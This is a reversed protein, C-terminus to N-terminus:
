EFIWKLFGWYFPVIMFIFALRSIMRFIDSWNQTSGTIDSQTELATTMDLVDVSTTVGTVATFNLLLPPTSTGVDLAFFWDIFASLYNWPVHNQIALFQNFKDVFLQYQTLTTTAEYGTLGSIGQIVSETVNITSLAVSPYYYFPTALPTGVLYMGELINLSYINWVVRYALSYTGNLLSVPITYPATTSSSIDYNIIQQEGTSSNTFVAQMDTIFFDTNTAYSYTGTLDFVGTSITTTAGPTPYTPTISAVVDYSQGWTIDDIYFPFFWGGAVGFNSLYNLSQTPYDAFNNYNYLIGTLPAGNSFVSVTHNPIDWAIQIYDWSDSPLHAYLDLCAGAYDGCKNMEQWNWSEGSTLNIEWNQYGYPSGTTYVWFSITGVSQTGLAVTNRIRGREGRDSWVGSHYYEDSITNTGNHTWNQQAEIDGLIYGDETEFSTIFTPAKFIYAEVVGYSCCVLILALILSKKM